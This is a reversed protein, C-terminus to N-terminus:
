HAYRRAELTFQDWCAQEIRDLTDQDTIAVEAGDEATRIDWIDLDAYEPYCDEWPGTVKARQHIANFEVVLATDWDDNMYCTTQM